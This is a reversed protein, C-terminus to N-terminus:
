FKRMVCDQYKKMWNKGFIIKTQFKFPFGKKISFLKVM